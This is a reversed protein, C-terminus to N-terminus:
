RTVIPLYVHDDQRSEAPLVTVDIPGFFTSRSGEEVAQVWYRYHTNLDVDVDTYTYVGAGHDLPILDDSIREANANDMLSRWVYFGQLSGTGNTQWSLITEEFASVSQFNSVLLLQASTPEDPSSSTPTASPTVPPTGTVTVPVTMSPTASENPMPFETGNNPLPTATSVPTESIPTESTPTDSVPTESVPTEPGPTEPGPTESTPM